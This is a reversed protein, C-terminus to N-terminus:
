KKVRERKKDKYFNYLLLLAIAIILATRWDLMDLWWYKTKMEVNFHIGGGERVEFPKGDYPLYGPATVNLYYMGEPVLFSYTGKADTVQPNDQSYDKAPWIEYHKAGPNLWYLTAVAGKVRLEGQKIKEFIYGEPDVVAIMRIEKVGLDVDKYFLVTIIEYQGEPVPATVKATYIGDGDPDNYNFEKLVLREEVPVPQDQEYAFVPEAFFLSAFISSFPQNLATEDVQRSKFTFYGKVMSVPYDPKVSLEIEKGSITSIKQVPRGKDSLTLAVNFDVLAGAGRAFVVAPPIKNKLDPTLQSLSINKPIDMAGAGIAPTSLGVTKTLGPLYMKVAGLKQVDNLRKIGVQAFTQDVEPFKNALAIFEKPLPAFVYERIPEQPLLDWLSRFAWPTVRAVFKEMPVVPTPAPKFGPILFRLSPLLNENIFKAIPISPIKFSPLKNPIIESLIGALTKRIIEFVSLPKVAPKKIEPKTPVVPTATTSTTTSVVQPPTEPPVSSGGGNVPIFGSGPAPVARSSAPRWDTKVSCHDCNFNIIGTNAGNAQGTFVGQSNITVGTFDIWGLNSSWAYGSLAGESTNKVGSTSPDLKIWGYLDNWVSGTLATDTIHVNGQTPAFNIWGINAGWVWKANADITGDSESALAPVGLFVALIVALSVALQRGGNRM